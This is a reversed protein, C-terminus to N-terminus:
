SARVCDKAHGDGEFRDAARPLADFVGNIVTGARERVRQRPKAIRGDVALEVVELDGPRELLAPRPVLELDHQFPPSLDAADDGRRRPIVGLGQRIVALGEADRHRDDHRPPRRQHLHAVAPRETGLHDQVALGVLLGLLVRLRQRLLSAQGVHRPEVVLVHDGPLPRQSQLNEFVHRVHIRDDHGDAPAAQDRPDSGRHLGDLRRHPDDADLRDVRRREV